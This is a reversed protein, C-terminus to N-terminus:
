GKNMGSIRRNYIKEYTLRLDCFLRGSLLTETQTYLFLPDHAGVGAPVRPRQREGRNEKIRGRNSKLDYTRHPAKLM